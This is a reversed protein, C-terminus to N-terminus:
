VRLRVVQIYVIVAAGNLTGKELLTALFSSDFILECPIRSKVLSHLHATSALAHTDLILFTRFHDIKFRLAIFIQCNQCVRFRFVGRLGVKLCIPRLPLLTRAIIGKSNRLM